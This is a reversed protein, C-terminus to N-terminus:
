RPYYYAVLEEGDMEVEPQMTKLLREMAKWEREDMDGSYHRDHKGNSHRILFLLGSQQQSVRISTIKRM